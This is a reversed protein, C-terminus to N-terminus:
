RKKEKRGKKGRSRAVLHSSSPREKKQDPGTAKLKRLLPNAPTLPPRSRLKRKEIKKGERGKRKEKKKKGREEGKLAASATTFNYRLQELNTGQGEMKGTGEGKKRCSPWLPSHFLCPESRQNEERKEKRRKKERRQREYFHLSSVSL